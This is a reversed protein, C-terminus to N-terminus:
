KRKRNKIIYFVAAGACLLAVIIVIIYTGTNEEKESPASDGTEQEGSDTEEITVSAAADANDSTETIDKNTQEEGAIEDTSEGPIVPETPKGVPTKVPQETKPHEDTSENGVTNDPREETTFSVSVSQPLKVGSKATLKENILLTYETETLLPQLPKIYITRKKDPEVQDDPFILEIGVPHGDSSRLTFCTRNNDKVSMNVVNKNFILELTVDTEVDKAGDKPTSAALSLAESSGGGSGDRSGNDAYVPSLLFVTIFIVLLLMSVKKM